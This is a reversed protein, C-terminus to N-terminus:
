AFLSAPTGHLANTRSLHIIQSRWAFCPTPHIGLPWSGFFPASLPSVHIPLQLRAVLWGFGFPAVRWRDYPPMEMQLLYPPSPFRPFQFM